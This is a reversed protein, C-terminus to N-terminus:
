VSVLLKSEYAADKDYFNMKRYALIALSSFQDRYTQLAEQKFSTPNDADFLADMNIEFLSTSNELARTSEIM